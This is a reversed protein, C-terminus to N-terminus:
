YCFRVKSLLLLYIVAKIIKVFSSSNPYSRSCVFCCFCVSPICNNMYSKNGARLCPPLWLLNHFHPTHTFGHKHLHAMMQPTDTKKLPFPLSWLSHASLWHTMESVLSLCLFDAKSCLRGLVFAWCMDAQQRSHNFPHLHRTKNARSFQYNLYIKTM